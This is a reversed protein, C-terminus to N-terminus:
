LIHPSNCIEAKGTIKSYSYAVWMSLFILLISSWTFRTFISLVVFEVSSITGVFQGHSIICYGEECVEPNGSYAILAIFGIFSFLGFFIDLIIFCIRFLPPMTKSNSLIKPLDTSYSKNRSIAIATFLCFVLFAIIAVIMHLMEGDLAFSLISSILVALYLCLSVFFTTKKM